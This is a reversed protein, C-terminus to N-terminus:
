PLTWAEVRSLDDSTDGPWPGNATNFTPVNHGHWRLYEVHGDAFSFTCGKNDRSSPPNWWEPPPTSLTYAWTYLGFCGDGCEYENEDVFVVMRPTGPNIIGAYKTVPSLSNLRPDNIDIGSGGSGNMAFNVSCSRTQPALWTSPHLPLSAAATVMYTDSPCVYIKVQRNYPYLLGSQINITTGDTQADGSVWSNTTTDFGSESENPPLRDNNDMVYMHYCLQLQKMNGLCQTIKAQSKAKALASLLLSALVAIIAIVVLLEILTFANSKKM